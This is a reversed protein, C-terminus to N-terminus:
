FFFYNSSKIVLITFYVIVRSIKLMLASKIYDTLGVIRWGRMIDFCMVLLRLCVLAKAVRSCSYMHPMCRYM